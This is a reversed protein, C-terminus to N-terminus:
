VVEFHLMWKTSNEGGNSPKFYFAGASGDLCQAGRPTPDVKYLTFQAAAGAALAALSLARLAMTGPTNLVKLRSTERRIEAVGCVGWCCGGRAGGIDRLSAKPSAGGRSPPHTAGANVDRGYGHHRATWREEVSERARRGLAVM